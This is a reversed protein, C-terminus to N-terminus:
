DRLLELWGMSETLAEQMEIELCIDGSFNMCVYAIM